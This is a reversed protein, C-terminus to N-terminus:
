GPIKRSMESLDIGGSQEFGGPGYVGEPRPARDGAERCVSERALAMKAHSGNQRFAALSMQWNPLLHVLRCSGGRNQTQRLNACLENRCHILRSGFLASANERLKPM